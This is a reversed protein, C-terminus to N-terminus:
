KFSFKEKLRISVPIGLDDRLRDHIANIQSELMKIEDSFFIEDVSIWLELYSGGDNGHSICYRYRPLFNLAKVIHFEILERHVKVGSISVLNDARQSLGFIKRLLRGCQCREDAFCAQEGTRFRVLPFARTTLTTLVMEGYGDNQAGAPTHDLPVIEPFFHDENVHLGNHYECEFAIAPGPVETLGYHLWTQAQLNEEILRRKRNEPQEGVLIITKLSFISPQYGIQAVYGALQLATAPTTILVSTRYDKLIQVQKSLSLVTNPIVGAGITEAGDKYDRAWNSLGPDLAIQLIDHATVEAAVLATSVIERWMKLDHRTYGSVTPHAGSGPATHIRVVDRLPVAFMGYPYNYALQKRDTLPLENLADLSEVVPPEPHFRTPQNQYFQVNRYARNITSQLRELQLQRMENHMSPDMM